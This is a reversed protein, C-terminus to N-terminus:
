KAPAKRAQQRQWVEREDATLESKKRVWESRGFPGRRSFRINDGEEVASIGSDAVDGAQEKKEVHNGPDQTKLLGFPSRRYLWTKGDKDVHRFVGPSVETAGAPITTEPKPAPEAKSPTEKKAEEAAIFMAALFLCLIPKMNKRMEGSGM